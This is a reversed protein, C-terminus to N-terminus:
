PRPDCGRFHSPCAWKMEEAKIDNEAAWAQCKPCDLDAASFGLSWHDWFDGGFAFPGHRLVLASGDKYQRREQGLPRAPDQYYEVTVRGSINVEDEIHSGPFYGKDHGWAQAILEADTSGNKKSYKAM